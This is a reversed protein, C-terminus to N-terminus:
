FGYKGMATWADITTERRKVRDYHIQWKLERQILQDFQHAFSSGLKSLVGHRFEGLLSPHKRFLPSRPLIVFTQIYHKLADVRHRFYKGSDSFYGDVIEWRDHDRDFILNDANDLDFIKLKRTALQGVLEGLKKISRSNKGSRNILHLLTPGQIRTKILVKSSDDYAAEIRSLCVKRLERHLYLDHKLYKPNINENPVKVVYRLTTENEFGDRASDLYIARFVVGSGGQGLPKGHLIFEKSGIYYSSEKIFDPRDFQTLAILEQGIAMSILLSFYILVLAIRNFNRRLM